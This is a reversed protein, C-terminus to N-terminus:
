PTTTITVSSSTNFNAAGLVSGSVVPGTMETQQNVASISINLTKNAPIGTFSHNRSNGTLHISVALDSEYPDTGYSLVFKTPNEALEWSVNLPSAASVVSGNAPVTLTPAAPMTISAQIVGEPVTIKLDASEGPTIEPLFGQFRGGSYPITTGNLEVLASAFATASTSEFVNIYAVDTRVDANVHYLNGAPTAPRLTLVSHKSRGDPLTATVTATTEADLTAPPTYQTQTGETESVSGPGELAWIVSVEESTSDTQLYAEFLTVPGGALIIPNDPSLVIEGAVNTTITLSSSSVSEGRVAIAKATYSDSYSGFQNSVVTIEYPATEDSGIRETAKYFEVKVVDPFNKVEARLTFPNLDTRNTVSSSLVVNAQPLDPTASSTSTKKSENGNRDVASLAVFYVRDNELETIEFTTKDKAVSIKNSIDASVGWYVIYNALDTEANATWSFTIKQNGSVLTLGKPTAPATADKPTSNQQCASLFLVLLLFFYNM